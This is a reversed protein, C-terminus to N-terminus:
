CNDEIYKEYKGEEAKREKDTFIKPNDPDETDEYLFRSNKIEQLEKVLEECKQKHEEKEKNEKDKLAVKEDREEQMVDLLKKQKKVRAQYAKDQKPKQKITIKDADSSTPKDAYVTKGNKDIWRYVDSHVINIQLFIFSVLLFLKFM